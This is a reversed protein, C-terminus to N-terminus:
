ILNLYLFTLSLLFVLTRLAPSLGLSSFVSPSSSPIASKYRLSDAGRDLDVCGPEDENLFLCRDGAAEGPLYPRVRLVVKVGAEAM